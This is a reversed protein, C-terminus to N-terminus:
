HQTKVEVRTREVETKTKRESIEKSSELSSPESQKGGKAEIASKAKDYDLIRNADFEMRLMRMDADSVNRRLAESEIANFYATRLHTELSRNTRLDFDLAKERTAKGDADISYRYIQAHADKVSIELRISRSGNDVFQRIKQTQAKKLKALAAHEGGAEIIPNLRGEIMRDIRSLNYAKSGQVLGATDKIAPSDLYGKFEACLVDRIEGNLGTKYFVGDIGNRPNKLTADVQTWGEHALFAAGLSEGIAQKLPDAHLSVAFCFTGVIAAIHMMRYTM